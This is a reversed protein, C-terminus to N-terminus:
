VDTTPYGPIQGSPAIVERYATEVRTAVEACSPAQVLHARGRTVLGQTGGDRLLRVIARFLALPNGPSFRPLLEDALPSNSGRPALAPTGAAWADFVDGTRWDASLVVVDAEALLSSRDSPHLVPVELVPVLTTRWLRRMHEDWPGYNGVLAAVAPWGDLRLLRVADIFALVGSKWDCAGAFVLL